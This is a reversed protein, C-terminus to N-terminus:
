THRPHGLADSIDTVVTYAGEHYFARAIAAGIGRAAGSILAVKGILRAM